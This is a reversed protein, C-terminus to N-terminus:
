KVLLMKKTETYDNVNLTYLYVGSALDSGDVEANYTGASIFDDLYTAVLKGTIDYIKLTAFGSKPVSFKINTVPNFPNPYNQLLEYKLPTVKPDIVGTLLISTQIAQQVEGMYLPSADKYVFVKLKCNADAWSSNINTSFSTTFSQGNNWTGGSNLADGTAGNVMNRVVWSHIANSSGACYSNGIQQYVLNDETIVYNIKYNGTLTSLATSKLTVNLQRTSSNYNQTIIDIKVPAVPIDLTRHFPIDFFGCFGVNAPATLREPTGTPYANMSLLTLINNGNFTVWPDGSGTYGHYSLIVANPLYGELSHLETEGCPCWPCWTGTCYEMLVNKPNTSVIFTNAMTDNSKNLDSSLATYAKYTYSGAPTATWSPFVVQQFAGPALNTVSLTQSYGGPTITVTVPFSQTTTGLNRVFVKPTDIVGPSIAKVYRSFGVVGVDNSYKTGIRINDLYCNNGYGSIASFKLKNTGSVLAYKKTAWQSATPVFPAYSSPATTLDAASLTVLIVWTSGGNTSYSIQIQDPYGSLPSYAHDFSLSDGTSSVSFLPSILDFTIGTTADSFDAKICGYGLGYGSCRVAWDWTYIGTSTTITWGAPPYTGPNDFDQWIYLAKAQNGLLIIFSLVFLLLYLKKM